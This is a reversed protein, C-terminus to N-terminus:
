ITLSQVVPDLHSTPLVKHNDYIQKLNDPLDYASALGLSLLTAAILHM